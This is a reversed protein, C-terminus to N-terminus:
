LQNKFTIQGDKMDQIVALSELRIGKGRIKEGGHQFEKEICIGVGAIQAFAQECIDILGLAACGNALFDDLILVRDTKRLYDKSVFVQYTTKKTYSDVSAIYNDDSLNISKTKKAFLLPVDFYKAAFCAIAIGSSEITLIKTIGEHQFIRFFEEGIHDLLIPDIQHNLFSDVKLINGPYVRGDKQIRDILEQM